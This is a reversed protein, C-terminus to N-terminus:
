KDYFRLKASTNYEKLLDSVTVFEYGEDILSDIILPLAERDAECEKGCFPHLLIISGPRVKDLTYRVISNVNGQHYTDPEIDWMVTRINNKELYWPLGFLKKGNPPRFTIEGAYGATRILENTKEIENAIFARSKLVMRHHSYSHNGLENGQQVIERAQMPFKELSQGVCFFTAKSKKERLIALVDETYESPADDFTLAIVKKDTEVRDVIIGFFQFSRSKSTVYLGGILVFVFLLVVGGYSRKM